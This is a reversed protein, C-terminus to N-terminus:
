EIPRLPAVFVGDYGRPAGHGRPREIANPREAERALRRTAAASCRAAHPM